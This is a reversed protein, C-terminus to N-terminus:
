SGVAVILGGIEEKTAAEEAEETQSRWPYSDFEGGATEKENTEGYEPEKPQHIITVM